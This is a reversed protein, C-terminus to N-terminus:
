TQGAAARQTAAAKTHRRGHATMGRPKYVALVTAVLLVVLGGSAHVVLSLRAETLQGPAIGTGVAVDALYGIPTLQLLLVVTAVVILLFKVLVWYHRFLGWATGLSSVLGTILAAFALPVIAYRMSLDMAVYAARITSQDRGRMGAIAFVLFVIVAGFWGLSSLVHTTLAARRGAPPLKM